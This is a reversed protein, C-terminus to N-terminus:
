LQRKKRKTRTLWLSKKKAAPQQPEPESPEPKEVELRPKLADDLKKELSAVWEPKESEEPAAPSVIEAPAEPEPTEDVIVAPGAEDGSEEEVIEDDPM